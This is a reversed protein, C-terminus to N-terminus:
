VSSPSFFFPKKQISESCESHEVATHLARSPACNAWARPWGYHILRSEIELLRSVPSGLPADGLADAGDKDADRVEDHCAAWCGTAAVSPMRSNEIISATIFLVLEPLPSKCRWAQLIAM